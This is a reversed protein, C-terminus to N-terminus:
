AKSASGTFRGVLWIIWGLVMVGVGLLFLLFKLPTLIAKADIWDVMELLALVQVVGELLDTAILVVFPLALMWGFRGYFAYASGIFLAGYALPYAVDLTATIVAHAFRQDASMTALLARVEGPDSIADVFSLSWMQAAAPFAATILLTLVFAIWLARSEGLRALGTPPNPTM